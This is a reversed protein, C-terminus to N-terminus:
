GFVLDSGVPCTVGCPVFVLDSGVPCAFVLDSGVPCAPCPARLERVLFWTQGGLTVLRRHVRRTLGRCKKEAQRENEERLATRRRGRDRVGERPRRRFRRGRSPAPGTGSRM